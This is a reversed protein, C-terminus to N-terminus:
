LATVYDQSQHLEPAEKLLAADRKQFTINQLNKAKAASQGRMIVKESVDIGLFRSNPFAEAMLNLAVGEACGVDCVQIGEQLKKVMKGNEVSPLFLSVLVQQHKADALETMFRHFGPYMEYPIGEGTKFRSEIDDFVTATLLPIEQTYVGMNSNGARRTLLDAHAKPLQFLDEGDKGRSLTVIGGTVMIGLWERIYRENLGASQAVVWVPQPMDFTDMVDFLRVRYGMGMALNLAGYNLIDTLKKSFNNKNANTQSSM